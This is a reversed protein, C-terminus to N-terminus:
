PILGVALKDAAKGVVVGSQNVMKKVNDTFAIKMVAVIAVIITILMLAYELTTQGRQARRGGKTGRMTGAGIM